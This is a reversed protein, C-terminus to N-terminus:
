AFFKMNEYEYFLDLHYTPFASELKAKKSTSTTGEDEDTITTDVTADQSIADGYGYGYISDFLDQYSNDNWNQTYTSLDPVEPINQLEEQLLANTDVASHEKNYFVGGRYGFKIKINQVFNKQDFESTTTTTTESSTQTTDTTFSSDLDSNM